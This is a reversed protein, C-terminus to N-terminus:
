LAAVVEAWFSAAGGLREEALVSLPAVTLVAVSELAAVAALLLLEVM